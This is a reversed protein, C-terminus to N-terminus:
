STQLWHHSFLPPWGPFLLAPTTSTNAGALQRLRNVIWGRRHEFSRGSHADM